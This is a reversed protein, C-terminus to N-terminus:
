RRQPVRKELMHRTLLYSTPYISNKQNKKIARFERKAETLKVKIEEMTNGLVQPLNTQRMLRRISTLSIRKGTVKGQRYKRLQDWLRKVNTTLKYKPSWKVEGRYVYRLNNKIYQRILTICNLLKNHEQEHLSSFIRKSYYTVDEDKGPM